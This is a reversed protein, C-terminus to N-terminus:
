AAERARLREFWLRLDEGTERSRARHVLVTLAALWFPEVALITGALLVLLFDPSAPSLLASWFTPDLGPIAGALWLGLLFVFFLNALVAVFAVSFVFVLGTLVRGEALPRAVERLPALLGPREFHPHAAAALGAVLVLLPVAVVSLALALFLVEVLLALYVYSAFAALSVRLAERGPAKDSRLGLGCARVYVARGWLSPLLAAMSALALDQLYDGYHSAESGLEILRAAFHVQLFRLPLSSLWLLGMWPAAVRMAVEAGDDLVESVAIRTGTV